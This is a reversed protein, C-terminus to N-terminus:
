GAVSAAVPDQAPEAPRLDAIRVAEGTQASEIAALAIELARVGDGLSSLPERDLQISEAFARWEAEYSSDFVGGRRIERSNRALEAAASGLRGLRVRPSGPLSRLDSRRLGDSRYLDVRLSGEEGWVTIENATSTLDSTFTEAIVGGRTRASVLAVEDDSRVSRSRAFVQDVEDELLVRWLDFHHIAKELLAGGGSGRHTRWAQLNSQELRPDNFVTTLGRVAGVGGDRVIKRAQRVLRHARLNFGMVAKVRAARACEVVAEADALTLALPKEVFLHKGSALAALGIEAHAAAPTCIAVADLAPDGILELAAHYVRPVGFRDAVREARTVDVDAVAEVGIEDVHALAPLHRAEVVLGCGVVGLRVQELM